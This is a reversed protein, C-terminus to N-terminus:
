LVSASNCRASANNYTFTFDWLSPRFLGPIKNKRDYDCDNQRQQAAPKALTENGERSLRRAMLCMELCLYHGQFRVETDPFYQYVLVHLTSIAAPRLGIGVIFTKSNPM